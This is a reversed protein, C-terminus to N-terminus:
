SDETRQERSTQTSRSLRQFTSRTDPSLYLVLGGVLGAGFILTTWLLSFALAENQGIGILSLFFVYSGERVGLGGFSLPLSSLLTVFPICLILYWFPVSIDLAHALLPLLSIQFVHFGLSISCVGLVLKPKAHYPAFLKESTRRIIHDPLFLRTVLRPLLWWALVVGGAAAITGYCVVIPLVTPGLVLFGLASVWLLMVLGSVRDALVSQLARGAGDRGGALFVGRGVDGAITSPAFLNLYMGGFYYTVFARFSRQVGLAHALLRWKYASLVQGFLYGVFALVVYGPQAARIRNAFVQWDTSQLLVVVLIVSISIQFWRSSFVAM